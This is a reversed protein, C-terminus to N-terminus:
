IQLEYAMIIADERGQPSPYYHRRVALTNFGQQEYLNQAALNSARVELFVSRTDHELAVALLHTLLKRGLGQRQKEPSVALNLIHAEQAAMSMLAYALIQQQAQLLVAYYGSRLCDAFIQRTWPSLHVQNEISLVAELDTYRMPCYQM